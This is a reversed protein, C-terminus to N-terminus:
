VAPEMGHPYRAVTNIAATPSGNVHILILGAWPQVLIVTPDRTSAIKIAVDRRCAIILHPRAEYM